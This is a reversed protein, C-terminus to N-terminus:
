LFFPIIGKKYIFGVNHRKEYFRLRGAFFVFFHDLEERWFWFLIGIFRRGHGIRGIRRLEEGDGSNSDSISRRGGHFAPRQLEPVGVLAAAANGGKAGDKVAGLGAVEDGGGGGVGADGDVAEGVGRLGGNDEPLVLVPHRRDRQTGVRGAERRPRDIM